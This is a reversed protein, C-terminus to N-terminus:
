ENYYKLMADSLQRNSYTKGKFWESNKVEEITIRNEPKLATMQEFLKKFSSSIKFGKEEAYHDHVKWFDETNSHLLEFLNIDGNAVEELYPLAGTVM